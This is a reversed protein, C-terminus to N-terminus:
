PRQFITLVVGGLIYQHDVTILGAQSALKQRQVQDYFRIGGPTFFIKKM